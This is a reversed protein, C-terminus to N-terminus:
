KRKKKGFLITNLYQNQKLLNIVIYIVVLSITFNAFCVAIGPITIFETKKSLKLINILLSHTLYIELSHVGVWNLTMELRSKWIIDIQLVYESKAVNSDYSGCENNVCLKSFDSWCRINNNCGIENLNEVHKLVFLPQYINGSFSDRVLIGGGWKEKTNRCFIGKCLGCLAICGTMSAVARIIVGLGTDSIEYLNFRMLLVIWVMLSTAVGIDIIMKGHNLSMLKERVQGYLYGAFFFPMYYLTLKIGLFSIGFVAGIGALLLLGLIYAGGTALMRKYRNTTIKAGILNSIGYIVTITWISFLFWYGNDMHWLIFRPNLFSNEGFIVGRVM